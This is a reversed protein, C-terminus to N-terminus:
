NWGLENELVKSFQILLTSEFLQFFLHLFIKKKKKKLTGSKTFHVNFNEDCKLIELREVARVEV